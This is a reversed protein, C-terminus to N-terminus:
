YNISPTYLISYCHLILFSIHSSYNRIASASTTNKSYRNGHVIVVNVSKCNRKHVNCSASHPPLPKIIAYNLQALVCYIVNYVHIGCERTSCLHYKDSALPSTTLHILNIVGWIDSCLLRTQTVLVSLPTSQTNM